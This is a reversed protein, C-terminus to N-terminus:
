PHFGARPGRARTIWGVRTSGIGGGSSGDRNGYCGAGKGLLLGSSQRFGGIQHAQFLRRIERAHPKFPYHEALQSVRGSREVARVLRGAEALSRCGM